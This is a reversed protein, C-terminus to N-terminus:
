DQGEGEETVANNALWDRADGEGQNGLSVKVMGKWLDDGRRHSFLGYFYRTLDVLGNKTGDMDIFFPDVSLEAKVTNRNFTDPNAGMMRRVGDPGRVQAPRRSFIVVDIDAPIKEEVFSGDLWQFGNRLGCRRLRERHDLWGVLIQQRRRTTGFRSVVDLPM